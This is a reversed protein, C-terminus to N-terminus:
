PLSFLGISGAVPPCGARVKLNAVPSNSRLAIIILPKGNKVENVNLTINKFIDSDFHQKTYGRRVWCMKYLLSEGDIM